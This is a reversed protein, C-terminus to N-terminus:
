FANLWVFPCVPFPHMFIMCLKFNTDCYNYIDRASPGTGTHYHQTSAKIWQQLNLVLGPSAEVQDTSHSNNHLTTSASLQISTFPLQYIHLLSPITAHALPAPHLSSCCFCWCLGAHDFARNRHQPSSIFGQRAEGWTRLQVLSHYSTWQIKFPKSLTFQPFSNGSFSASFLSEHSPCFFGFQMIFGPLLRLPSSVVLPPRFSPAPCSLHVCPLGDQRYYECMLLIPISFIKNLLRSSWWITLLSSSAWVGVCVLYKGTIQKGSRVVGLGCPTSKCIETKSDFCERTGSPAHRLQLLKVGRLWWFAPPQREM